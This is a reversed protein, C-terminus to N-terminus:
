SGTEALASEWYKYSYDIVEQLVSENRNLIMDTIQRHSQILFDADNCEIIKTTAKIRSPRSLHAIVTNIRKVLPNHTAECVANHFVIDAELIGLINAPRAEIVQKLSLYATEITEHDERTAKKIALHSIGVELLARVERLSRSDDDELVLSYVLPNLMKDSVKDVVYTGDSRRIELLGLSVLSKVAERVSNRSVGLAERMEVETPIKTGPKWHKQTISQVIIDVVQEVTSRGGINRFYELGTPKEMDRRPTPIGYVLRSHGHRQFIQRNRRFLPLRRKAYIKRSLAM